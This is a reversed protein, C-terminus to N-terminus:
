ARRGSRKFADPPGPANHYPGCECVFPFVTRQYLATRQLCLCCSAKFTRQLRFGSLTNFFASNEASLPRYRRQYLADRHLCFGRRTSFFLMESLPHAAARLGSLGMGGYAFRNRSLGPGGCVFVSSHASFRVKKDWVGPCGRLGPRHGKWRRLLVFSRRSLVGQVQVPGARHSSRKVASTFGGAQLRVKWRGPVVFARRSRVRQVPRLVQVGPM